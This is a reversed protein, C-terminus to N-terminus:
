CCWLWWLYCGLLVRAMCFVKAVMFCGLFVLWLSCGLFVVVVCVVKAVVFFGLLV